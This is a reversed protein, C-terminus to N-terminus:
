FRVTTSAYWFRGHPDVYTPDYGGQFAGGAGNVYPVKANFADRVGVVGTFMKTPDWKLQFDTTGYTHVRPASVGSVCNGFDDQDLSGCIDKAGSQWNYIATGEFKGDPTRYSLQNTLKVRPTFGPATSSTTAVNSSHSGDPNVTDFKANWTGGIGLGLTGMSSKFMGHMDFDLGSVIYETINQTRQDIAIIPGGLGTGDAPGRNVYAGYQAEHSLIYDVGLTTIVNKLKTRFYDFAFSIDKVPELVTGLTYTSSTEPKLNGNGGTYLNYQTVCDIGNGGEASCRAPDNLVASVGSQLPGYLELLSPARFGTSYTGRLLYQKSIEWKVGIKGTAKGFSPASVVSQNAVDNQVTTPLPDNNSSTFSALTPLAAAASNPNSTASYRDYRVAADVDFGKFVPVDLEGFVSYVNRKRDIAAFNGGYGSIDGSALAPSSDLAFADRRAEVGLAVGVNGGPLKFLDDKSLKFQADSLSTKTRFAMGTYNAAHAANIVDATNQGFPNVWLTNGNADKDLGNLLSEIGPGGIGNIRFYGSVLSETVESQSYLANASYDWGAANGDAGFAVRTNTGVDSLGRGGTIFPRYRVSLNPTAGGTLPTVFSTPYYPNATTVIFPIQFASDIPSPQILVFQKKNTISLDGHLSLSDSVDYHGNFIAGIKKIDPQLSVFPGPDFLCDLKGFQANYVSVPGCNPTGGTQILKGNADYGVPVNPNLVKTSYTPSIPNPQVFTFNGPDTRSSGGFNDHSPQITTSAFGRDRGYLPLDHELTLVFTANGKESNFGQVMSGKYVSGKRDYSTGAYANLETGSYNKRLVFNVVGAVADSGYIAGAGEKLIEIREIAAVPISDIDVAISDTPSGYPASRLGNVLVLTRSPGLGRLSITSIGGTTSGSSSSAATSGSSQSATVSRLLEEVSTAGTKAIDERSLTTIPADSEADVRKISSGIIEVRQMSPADQAFASGSVAFSGSGIAILLGSCIKTRQFM